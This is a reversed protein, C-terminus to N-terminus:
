AHAPASLPPTTIPIDGTAAPTGGALTALQLQLQQLRQKISDETILREKDVEDEIGELTRKVITLPVGFVVDYVFKGLVM